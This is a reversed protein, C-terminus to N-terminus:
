EQEYNIKKVIIPEGVFKGSQLLKRMLICKNGSNPNHFKDLEEYKRTTLLHKTFRSQEINICLLHATQQIRVLDELMTMLITGIGYGAITCFLHNFMQSGCCNGSERLEFGAFSWDKIERQGYSSIEVDDNYIRNAKLLFNYNFKHKDTEVGSTEFSYKLTDLNLHYGGTRNKLIENVDKLRSKLIPMYYEMVKKANDLGMGFRSYTFGDPISTAIQYDEKSLAALLPKEEKIPEKSEEKTIVTVGLVSRADFFTRYTRNIIMDNRLEVEWGRGLQVPGGNAVDPEDRIVVTKVKDSKKRSQKYKRKNDQKGEAKKSFVDFVDTRLRRNLLGDVRSM